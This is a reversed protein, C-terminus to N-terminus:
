YPCDNRRSIFAAILERLGPSLPSPGRLIDQALELLHKAREPKFAFLRLIDPAADGSKEFGHIISGFPEGDAKQVDPLHM